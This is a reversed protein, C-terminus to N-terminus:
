LVSDLVSSDGLLGVHLHALRVAYSRIDYRDLFRQRAGARLCQRLAPDGIVRILAAALETADGPRVLLGSQDPEIVEAHAGVPTAVVSLGHALGELVSMALGEAHSPLVLVDAAACLASAAPQDIWGPFTVRDALGLAAARARFEHKPGGGALTARWPLAALVPSALAELLEPVGKEVSLNGLFVIHAPDAAAVGATSRPAPHPDLVANPLVLISGDPLALAARLTRETGRGLVVIQAAAAFMGRVLRQMLASRARVDAAYSQIPSESDHVHLLYPLAAARAIATLMLKRLTSGRGTINVHLVTPQRAIGAWTIRCAAAALYLASVPIRWRSSGLFWPGRPDVVRYTPTDTSPPLAALFYGMQRGIGGGHELGGPCLVLVNIPPAGSGDGARRSPALGTAGGIVRVWSPCYGVTCNVGYLVHKSLTQLLSRGSLRENIPKSKTSSADLNVAMALPVFSGKGRLRRRLNAIPLDVFIFVIYALAGTLLLGSVISEIRYPSGFVAEAPTRALLHFLYISYSLRGILVMAPAALVRRVVTTPQDLLVISVLPMLAIGQISYRITTRFTDEQIIFTAVLLCVGIIRSARAKCIIVVRSALRTEFLVRLIAGYLISDIRTDTALGIYDASISLMCHAIVRWILIIICAAVIITLLRSTDRINTKVVLPWLLYFHEEIALSWCIGFPICRSPDLGWALDYYNTYYLLVATTLGFPVPTGGVAVRTVRYFIVGLLVSIILPPSLRLWRRLYFSPISINGYSQYEAFFLTTILYGSLFFFLTVGFGGPVPVLRYHACLVIGIAVARLGDLEKVYRDSSAPVSSGKGDVSSPTVRM